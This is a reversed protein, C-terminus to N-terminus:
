MARHFPALQLVTPPPMFWGTAPRALSPVCSTATPSKVIAPVVPALRTATHFPDLQLARTLEADAGALDWDLVRKAESLYCHAEADREDLEIAKM